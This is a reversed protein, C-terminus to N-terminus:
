VSHTYIKAYTTHIKKRLASLMINTFIYPLMLKTIKFGQIQM